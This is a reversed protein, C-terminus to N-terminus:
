SPASARQTAGQPTEGSAITRGLLRHPQHHQAGGPVPIGASSDTVGCATATISIASTPGSLDSQSVMTMISQTQGPFTLMAPNFFVQDDPPVGTATLDVFGTFGSLGTVTIPVKLTSCPPVSLTRPRRGLVPVPGRSAGIGLPADAGGLREGAHGHHHLLPVRGRGFPAANHRRDSDDDHHQGDDPKPQLAGYERRCGRHASPSRGSPATSASCSSTDTASAGQALSFFGNQASLAFDAPVGWPNDFTINDMSVDEDNATVDFGVINASSSSMALLTHTGQDAPVTM